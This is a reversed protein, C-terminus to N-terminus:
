SSGCSKYGKHTTPQAIDILYPWHYKLLLSPWSSSAFGLKRSFIQIASAGLRRVEFAASFCVALFFKRTRLNESDPRIRQPPKKQRNKMEELRNKETERELSGPILGSM